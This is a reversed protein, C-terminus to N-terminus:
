RDISLLFSDDILNNLYSHLKERNKLHLIDNLLRASIHLEPENGSLLRLNNNYDPLFLGKFVEDVEEPAVELRGSMRFISDQHNSSFHSKAKFHTEILHQISLRNKLAEKKLALVDVILNPAQQSSFIEHGGLELLKGSVPEYTIVVDVQGAKWFNLHQDISAEVVEVDEESLNAEKLLRDLMISGVSGVEVAIKKGKLDAFSDVGAKGIVVDAGASIDFVLVVVLDLGDNKARLVEDFTLAGGDVKGQHLLQLTESASDTKHLNVLSSDLLGINQGLFMFEYGPWVHSAVTIKQNNSCGALVLLFCLAIITQLNKIM